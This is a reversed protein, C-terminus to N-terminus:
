NLVSIKVAHQKTGVVNMMIQAHNMIFQLVLPAKDVIIKQLIMSVDKLPM